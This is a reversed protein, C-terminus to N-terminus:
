SDVGTTEKECGSFLLSILMEEEQGDGGLMGVAIASQLNSDSISPWVPSPAFFHSFTSSANQM